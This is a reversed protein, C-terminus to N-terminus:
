RPRARSIPAGGGSSGQGRGGVARYVQREGAIGKFARSGRDEFAIGAGSALERATASVFVEGAGAASMIRAALHVALGRLERGALEVEGTHVGARVEVGLNQSTAAIALACLIAQAPSDFSAVFGDGTMGAERGRHLELLGRVAEEHAALLRKWARDGLREAVETSAVIDTFLLTMLVRDGADPAKAWGLVGQVDLVVAATDGVVWSDHGPSIELVDGPGGEAIEGDRTEFGLRGELVVSVHHFECRETGAIPKVHKSWRWGPELVEWGLALSSVKIVDLHGHDFAVREDADKFNRVFIGSM